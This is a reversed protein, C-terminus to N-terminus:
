RERFSNSDQATADSITQTSSNFSPVKYTLMKDLTPQGTSRLEEVGFNDIPVPSNLITRPKSRNGTIVIEDLAVGDQMAISLSQASDVNVEQTTFGVSSFVLVSPFAEVNITFNGDFDSTTGTTTGKIIVNVGPLPNGTSAETTNGTVTGQAFAFFPFILFTFVKIFDLQKM